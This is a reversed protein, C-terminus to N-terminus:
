HFLFRLISSVGIGGLIAIIIDKKRFLRTSKGKANGKWSRGDGLNFDTDDDGPERLSEILDQKTMGVKEFNKESM